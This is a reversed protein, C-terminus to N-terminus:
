ASVGSQAAVRRRLALLDDVEQRRMEAERIEWCPTEDLRVGRIALTVPGPTSDRDAGLLSRRAQQTGLLGRRESDTAPLLTPTTYAHTAM